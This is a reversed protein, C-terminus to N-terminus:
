AGKKEPIDAGAARAKSLMIAVNQKAAQEPGSKRATKALIKPPNVKLEHGAARILKQTKTPKKAAKKSKKKKGAGLAGAAASVKGRRYKTAQKKNLVAEGKELRAVGTKPVYRTGRKYSPIKNRVGDPTPQVLSPQREKLAPLISQFPNPM